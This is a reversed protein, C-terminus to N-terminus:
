TLDLRMFVVGDHDFEEFERGAYGDTPVFGVSRYLAHAPHMFSASELVLAECGLERADATLQEVIARGVGLGRASPRVFMRKVEGM